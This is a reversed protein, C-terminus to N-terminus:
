ERNGPGIELRNKRSKEFHCARRRRLCALGVAIRRLLRRSLMLMLGRALLGEIRVPLAATSLQSATQIFYVTMTSNLRRFSTARCQRYAWDTGTNSFIRCPQASAQLFFHAELCENYDHHHGSQECAAHAHRAGGLRDLDTDCPDCCGGVEGRDQKSLFPDGPM